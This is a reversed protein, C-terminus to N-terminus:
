ARLSKFQNMVQAIWDCVYIHAEALTPELLLFTLARDEQENTPPHRESAIKGGLWFPRSRRALRSSVSEYPLREERGSLESTVSPRM